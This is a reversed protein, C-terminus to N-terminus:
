DIFEFGYRSGHRNRVLGRLKRQELNVIVVEGVQLDGCVIAGLGKANQDRASARYACGASGVVTLSAQLRYREARRRNAPPRSILGALWSRSEDPAHPM